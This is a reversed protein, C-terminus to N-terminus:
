KLLTSIFKYLHIPLVMSRNGVIEVAHAALANGIFSVLDLPKGLSALPAAVAFFADGAGVRDVIQAALSPARWIGGDSDFGLSGMKGRTIILREAHLRTRLLEGLLEIKGHKDQLALRAEPEDVCAFDVRTYKKTILNYGLNASNTQANVALFRSGARVESAIRATVTGHGYDSIMALDTQPALEQIQQSIQTELSQAIDRDDITCIEFIKRDADDYLYRRKVVTPADPRTFAHLHVNPMLQSGLSEASVNGTGLVTMLDVRACFHALQNAVALVGGYFREERLYRNVVLPHKLSQGLPECTVYEDLIADGVLLVRLNKLEQLAEILPRDSLYKQRIDSLYSKQDTSLIGMFQNILNSSSFVVGDTTFFIEGGSEEVAKTEESIAGTLDGKEDLYEKGKVYLHPKLKRICEVATPHDALCVYDVMELAALTQARLEENFVPRGPGKHVHRDRTITVM